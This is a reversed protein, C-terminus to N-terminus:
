NSKSQELMQHIKPLLTKSSMGTSNLTISVMQHKMKKNGLVILKLIILERFLLINQRRTIKNM